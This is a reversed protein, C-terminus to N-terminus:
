VVLAVAAVTLQLLREAGDLPAEDVDVRLARVTVRVREGRGAVDALREAPHRHVVLLRDGQDRTTVGEALRVARARLVVDAGIGLAGRDLLLAKAPLAGEAAALAAVRDRATELDRPRSGRHTPVVAEELGQVAVLPLQGLARRAGVLPLRLVARPLTGDGVGVVRRLAM